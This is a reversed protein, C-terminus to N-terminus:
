FTINMSNQHHTQRMRSINPRDYTKVQVTAYQMVASSKFSINVVPVESPRRNPPLVGRCSTPLIAARALAHAKIFSRQAIQSKSEHGYRAPVCLQAEESCCVRRHMSGSIIM